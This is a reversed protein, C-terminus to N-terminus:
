SKSENLQEKMLMINEALSIYECDMLHVGDDCREYEQLNSDLFVIERTFKITEKILKKLKQQNEEYKTGFDYFLIFVYDFTNETPFQIESWNQVIQEMSAGYFSEVQWSDELYKELYFAHSNGILLTQKKM